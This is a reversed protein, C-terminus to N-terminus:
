IGRRLREIFKEKERVKVIRTKDIELVEPFTAFLIVTIDKKLPKHFTVKLRTRGPKPKGWYSFDSAATPDIEIGILSYGQRYTDRNIGIDTNEYITGSVKYLSMLGEIYGCDKFDLQFAPGPVSEADVNFCLSSMNYHKFRLPNRTYDGAYAVSDVMGVILRTPCEGQWVDELTTEYSGKSVNFTRVDTRQFPYLAPGQELGIAHGLMVDPDVNVKCVYLKIEELVFHAKVNEPNVIFKFADKNPFLKIDINVGPLILRNQNCIDALLPGQYEVCSPDDYLEESYYAIEAEREEKQEESEGPKPNEEQYVTTIGKLWKYRESIGHGSPINDVNNLPITADFNGQDGTFGISELQYKKAGYNYTMLNEIYAKYMYNTGSTSVLTQNFKVDVMSWMTHLIMDIPIATKVIHNQEFPRGKDDTIKAKIYLETRSLDTYQSGSGQIDFQISSQEGKTQFTPLQEVWMIKDESINIPPLDFLKVSETYIGKAKEVDKSIKSVGAAEMKELQTVPINFKEALESLRTKPPAM